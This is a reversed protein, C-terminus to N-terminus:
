FLMGHNIITLLRILRHTIVVTKLYDILTLTNHVSHFFFMYGVRCRHEFLRIITRPDGVGDKQHRWRM